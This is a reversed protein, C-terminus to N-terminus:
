QTSTSICWTVEVCGEKISNLLVSFGPILLLNGHVLFWRSSLLLVHKIQVHKYAHVSMRAQLPRQMLVNNSVVNVQLMQTLSICMKTM